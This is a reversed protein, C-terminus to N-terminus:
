HNRERGGRWRWEEAARLATSAERTNLRQSQKRWAHLLVARGDGDASYAVRLARIRLEFLRERKDIIWAYPLGLAMGEDILRDVAREFAACAARDGQRKLRTIYDM